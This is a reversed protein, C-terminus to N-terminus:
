ACFGSEAAVIRHRLTYSFLCHCGTRSAESHKAARLRASLLFVDDASYTHFLSAPQPWTKTFLSASNITYLVDLIQYLLFYQKSVGTLPITDHRGMSICLTHTYHFGRVQLVLHAFYILCLSTCCSNLFSVKRGANTSTGAVLAETLFVM